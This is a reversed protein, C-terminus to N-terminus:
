EGKFSFYPAFTLLPPYCLLYLVFLQIHKRQKISEERGRVRQRESGGGTIRTMTIPSNSPAVTKKKSSTEEEMLLMQGCTSLIAKFPHIQIEILM